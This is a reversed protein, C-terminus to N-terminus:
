VRDRAIVIHENGPSLGHQVGFREILEGRPDAVRDLVAGRLVDFLVHARHKGGPEGTEIEHRAGLEVHLRLHEQLRACLEVRQLLTEGLEAALM